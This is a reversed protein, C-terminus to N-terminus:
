LGVFFFISKLTSLLLLYESVTCLCSIFSSIEDAGFLCSNTFIHELTSPEITARLLDGVMTEHSETRDLENSHGKMSINLNTFYDIRSMCEIIPGWSSGLINAPNMGLKLLTSIAFLHKERM